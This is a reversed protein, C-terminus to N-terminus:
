KSKASDLKTVLLRATRTGARIIQTDEGLKLRVSGQTNSRKYETTNDTTIVTEWGLTYAIIVGDSEEPSVSGSFDLSQRDLSASFQTSAVVVSLEFPQADKDTITLTVQYNGPLLDAPKSVYIQKQSVSSETQPLGAPQRSAM